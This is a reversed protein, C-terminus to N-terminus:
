TFLTSVYPSNQGYNTSTPITCPSVNLCGHTVLNVGALTGATPATSGSMTQVAFSGCPSSGICNGSAFVLTKPVNYLLSVQTYSSQIVGSSNSVIFWTATRYSSGIPWFLTGLSYQDLAITFGNSNLNTVRVSLAFGCATGNLPSPGCAGPITTLPVNYARGMNVLCWATAGQCRVVQFYTYSDHKLYLDGIAGSGLANNVNQSAPAPYTTSYVGGTATFVKITDTGSTYAYGTNITGTTTQINVALPLAPTSNSCSGSPLGRGDCKLVNNSSDLVYIATINLNTAGTNTVTFGINSGTLLSSITLAEGLPGLVLSARATQSQVYLQNVTNVFVFYSAGVSFLMAFLFITAIIGATASRKPFPLRAM